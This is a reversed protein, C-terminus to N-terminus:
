SKTAPKSVGSQSRFSQTNLRDTHAINLVHGVSHICLLVGIVELVELINADVFPLQVAHITQLLRRRLIQAKVAIYHLCCHGPWLTALCVRISHSDWTESQPPNVCVNKVNCEQSATMPTDRSLCVGARHLGLSHLAARLIRKDGEGPPLSLDAIAWLPMSLLTCTWTEDLFPHRGERGSDAVLRDDRGM